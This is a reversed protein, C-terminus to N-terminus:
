FEMGCSYDPMLADARQWREPSRWHALLEYPGLDETSIEEQQEQQTETEYSLNIAFMPKTATKSLSAQCYLDM